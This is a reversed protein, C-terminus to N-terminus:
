IVARPVPGITGNNMYSIGDVINFEQRVKEWYADDLGGSSDLRERWTQSETEPPSLSFPARSHLPTASLGAALATMSGCLFHRRSVRDIPQFNANSNRASM